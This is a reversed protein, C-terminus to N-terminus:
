PELAGGVVTYLVLLLSLVYFGWALKGILRYDIAQFLAMCSVSVGLFVLQRIGDTRGVNWISLLGLSSLVGVAVLVPWNTAIGLQQWLKNMRPSRAATRSRSSTSGTSLVGIM